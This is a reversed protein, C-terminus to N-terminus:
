TSCQETKNEKADTNDSLESSHASAHLRFSSVILTSITFKVEYLYGVLWKHYFLVPSNWVKHTGAASYKLIKLETFINIIRTPQTM